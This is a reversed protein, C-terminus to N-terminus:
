FRKPMLIKLCIFWKTYVKKFLPETMLVFSIENIENRYSYKKREKIDYNLADNDIETENRMTIWWLLIKMGEGFSDNIYLLENWKRKGVARVVPNEHDRVLDFLYGTHM